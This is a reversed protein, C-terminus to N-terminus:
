VDTGFSFTTNGTMMLVVMLITMGIAIVTGIVGLVIGARAMGEGTLAGNSAAIEPTIAGSVQRPDSGIM